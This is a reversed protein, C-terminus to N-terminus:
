AKAGGKTEKDAVFRITIGEGFFPDFEITNTNNPVYTEHCITKHEKCWFERWVRPADTKHTWADIQFQTIRCDPLAKLVDLHYGRESNVQQRRFLYIDTMRGRVFKPCIQFEARGYTEHLAQYPIKTDLTIEKWEIEESMLIGRKLKL